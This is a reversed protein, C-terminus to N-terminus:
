YLHLSVKWETWNSKHASWLGTKKFIEPWYVLAISQTNIKVVSDDRWHPSMDDWMQNLHEIDEAFSTAPVSVKKIAEVTINIIIGNGLTFSRSPGTPTIQSDPVCLTSPAPVETQIPVAASTTNSTHSIHL